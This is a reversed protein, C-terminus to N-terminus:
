STKRQVTGNVNIVSATDAFVKVLQTNRVYQDILIPVQGANRPVRKKVEKGNVLVTVVVTKTGYNSAFLNVIDYQTDASGAVGTHVTQAGGSDTATIELPNGNTCGTPPIVQLGM